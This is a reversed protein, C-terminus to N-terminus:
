WADMDRFGHEEPSLDDHDDYPGAVCGLLQKRSLMSFVFPLETGSPTEVKDRSWYVEGGLECGLEAAVIDGIERLESFTFDFGLEDSEGEILADFAATLLAHRPKPMRVELYDIIRWGEDGKLHRVAVKQTVVEPPRVRYLRLWERDLGFPVELVLALALRDISSYLRDSEVDDAVLVRREAVDRISMLAALAEEPQLVSDSMLFGHAVRGLLGLRSHM